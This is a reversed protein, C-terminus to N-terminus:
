KNACMKIGKDKSKARALMIGCCARVDGIATSQVILAACCVSFIEHPDTTKKRKIFFIGNSFGSMPLVFWNKLQSAVCIIFADDLVRGVSHSQSAEGAVFIRHADFLINAWAFHSHPPRNQFQFPTLENDCCLHLRM